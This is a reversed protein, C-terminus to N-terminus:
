ELTLMVKDYCTDIYLIQFNYVQHRVQHWTSTLVRKIILKTKKCSLCRLIWVLMWVHCVIILCNSIKSTNRLTVFEVHLFFSRSVLVSDGPLFFIRLYNKNKIMYKHVFMRVDCVCRNNSSWRHVRRYSCQTLTPCQGKKEKNLKSLLYKIRISSTRLLNRM